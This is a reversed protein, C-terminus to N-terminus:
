KKGNLMNYSLPNIHKNKVVFHVIKITGVLHREAQLSLRDVKYVKSISGTHMYM